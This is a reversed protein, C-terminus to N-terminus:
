IEKEQKRKTVIVIILVILIGLSLLALFILLFKLFGIQESQSNIIKDKEKLRLSDKSNLTDKNTYDWLQFVPSKNPLLIFEDKKILFYFEGDERQRIRKKIKFNKNLSDNLDIIEKTQLKYKKAINWINDNQKIQYVVFLNELSSDSRKNDQSFVTSGIM